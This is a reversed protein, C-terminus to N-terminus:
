SSTSARAIIGEAERLSTEWVGAAGVNNVAETATRDESMAIYGQLLLPILAASEGPKSTPVATPEYDLLITGIRHIEPSYAVYDTAIKGTPNEGAVRRAQVIIAEALDKNWGLTVPSLSVGQAQHMFIEHIGQYLTQAVSWAAPTDAVVDCEAALTSLRKNDFSGSGIYEGNSM